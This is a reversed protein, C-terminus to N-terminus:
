AVQKGKAPAPKAKGKKPKTIAKHVLRRVLYSRRKRNIMVKFREFDTLGARTEKM